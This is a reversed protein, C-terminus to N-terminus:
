WFGYQGSRMVYLGLLLNTLVHAVVAAWLDGTLLFLGGYAAGAFMGALWRDHEVGFFVVMIMFPQLELLRMPHKWFETRCLWRYLFGRWFFEEIVAIVFASGALRVLTLPLGCVDPAYPSPVSLTPYYDPFSGPPWVLWRMYFEQIGPFLRGFWPTEPLVWVAFVLVGTGVAAPLNALRAAPYWRWPRLWFLLALCLATRAAYAWAPPLPTQALAAMLALWAVFPAAHALVAAHPRWWPRPKGAPAAGTGSPSAAPTSIPVNDM